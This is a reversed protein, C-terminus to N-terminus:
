EIRDRVWTVLLHADLAADKVAEFFEPTYDGPNDLYNNMDNAISMTLQYIYQLAEQADKPNQMAVRRPQHLNM